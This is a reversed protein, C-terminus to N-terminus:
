RAKGTSQAARAAVHHGPASTEKEPEEEAQETPEAAQIVMEYEDNAMPEAEDIEMEEEARMAQGETTDADTGTTTAQRGETGLAGGGAAPAEDMAEDVPARTASEGAAGSATTKAREDGARQAAKYQRVAESAVQLSITECVNRLLVTKSRGKGKKKAPTTNEDRVYAVENGGAPPPAVQEVCWLRATTSAPTPSCRTSCRTYCGMPATM